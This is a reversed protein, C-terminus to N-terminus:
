TADLILVAPNHVIAQAIGIRQKYGKSLNAILRKGVDALGCRQKASDIANPRASIPVNRIAACFDLYEDVTVDSYLPAEEPLYGLNSKAAIPQLAIDHGCIKVSGSHPAFVGALIKLTTTKGVGNAGLLGLIDGAQLSINLDGIVEKGNYRCSLNTASLISNGVM